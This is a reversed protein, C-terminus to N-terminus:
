VGDKAQGCLGNIIIGSGTDKLEGVVPRYSYWQRYNVKRHKWLPHRRLRYVLRYHVKIKLSMWQSLAIARLASKGSEAIDEANYGLTTGM